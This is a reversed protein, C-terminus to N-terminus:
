IIYFNIKRKKIYKASKFIFTNDAQCTICYMYMYVCLGDNMIYKVTRKITIEFNINNEKGNSSDFM